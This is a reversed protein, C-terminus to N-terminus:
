DSCDRRHNVTIGAQVAIQLGVQFFANPFYQGSGTFRNHNADVTRVQLNQPVLGLVHALGHGADITNGAQVLLEHNLHRLHLDLDLEVDRPM